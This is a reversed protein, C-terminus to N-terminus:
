FVAIIDFFVIGMYGPGVGRVGPLPVAQYPFSSM